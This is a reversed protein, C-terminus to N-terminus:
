SVTDVAASGRRPPRGRGGTRPNSSGNRRGAGFLAMMTVIIGVYATSTLMAAPGREGGSGIVLV